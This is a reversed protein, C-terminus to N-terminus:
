TSRMCSGRQEKLCDVSTPLLFIEGKVSPVSFDLLKVLVRSTVPELPQKRKWSSFSFSHLTPIFLHTHLPPPPLSIILSHIIMLVGFQFFSIGEEIMNLSFLAFNVNSYLEFTYWTFSSVFMCSKRWSHIEWFHPSHAVTCSPPLSCRRARMSLSKDIVAMQFPGFLCGELQSFFIRGKSVM